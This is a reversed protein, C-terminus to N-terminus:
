AMGEADGRVPLEAGSRLAWAVGKAFIVAEPNGEAKEQLEQLDRELVARDRVLLALCVVLANM